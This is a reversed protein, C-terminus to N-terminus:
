NDMIEAGLGRLRDDPIKFPYGLSKMCQAELSVPSGAASKTIEHCAAGSNWLLLERQDEPIWWQVWLAYGVWM